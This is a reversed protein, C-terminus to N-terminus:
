RAVGEKGTKEYVRCEAGVGASSIRMLVARADDARVVKGKLGDLGGFARQEGVAGPGM